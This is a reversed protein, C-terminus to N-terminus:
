IPSNKIQCDIGFEGFKGFKIMMNYLSWWLKGSCPLWCSQMFWRFYIWLITYIAWWLIPGRLSRRSYSIKLTLGWMVTEDISIIPILKRFRKFILVCYVARLLPTLELMELKTRALATTCIHCPKHMSVSIWTLVSTTNRM